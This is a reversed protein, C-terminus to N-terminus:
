CCRSRSRASRRRLRHRRRRLGGGQPGVPHEAPRRHLGPVHVPLRAVHQRPDALVDGARADGALRHGHRALPQHRVDHEAPRAVRAGDHVGPLAYPIIILSRYIKRGACGSTTSCWRWCCASPSATLVSLLAFALNWLLVRGFSAASSTAPSCRATTTSASSADHLRADADLRRRGHVPGGDATYVVDPRPTPSRAPRRLRLGADVRERVGPRRLHRDGLGRDRRPHRVDGPRGSLRAARRGRRAPRRHPRRRQRHVHAGDDVAGAARRRGRAARARRDHRPLAGRDGPRVPRLRRVHRRAGACRRSTTRRRGRPRSISQSQIQEIAQDKSLVFGTGYNTTSMYATYLVPYVGFCLLFFVGPLLYKMPVYRRPLYVVNLAVLTVLLVAFYGWAEENFAILLGLLAIADALGLLVIKVIWGTTSGAGDVSGARGKSPRGPAPAPGGDLVEATPATM